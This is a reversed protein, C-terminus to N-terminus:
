GQFPMTSKMEEDHHLMAQIPLVQIPLVEFNPSVYMYMYNCRLSRKPSPSAIFSLLIFALGFYFRSERAPGMHFQHAHAVKKKKHMCALTCLLYGPTISYRRSNASVNEFVQALFQPLFSCFIRRFTRVQWSNASNKASFQAYKSWIM